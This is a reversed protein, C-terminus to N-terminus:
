SDCFMQNIKKQDIKKIWKDIPSFLKLRIFEIISSVMYVLLIIIMLNLFIIPFDYNLLYRVSNTYYTYIHPNSHILYVSFVEPVFFKVIKEIMANLKIKTFFLLLSISAFVILPSTYSVAFYGYVDYKQCLIWIGFTLFVGLWYNLFCTSKKFYQSIELKNLLAGLTYVVTCWIVSYGRNVNFFDIEKAYAIPSMAIFPLVSFIFILIGFLVQNLQKSSENILKNIFPTFFCLIFYCTFFWYQNSLVPTITKLIPIIHFEGHIVQLIVEVTILYFVVQLWLSLIRSLKFKSKVGFYGSILLFIDVAGYCVIELFWSLNFIIGETETLMGSRSLSHLTVVMMMSIIRLLDVNYSRVKEKM